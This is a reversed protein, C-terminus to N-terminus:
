FQFSRVQYNGWNKLPPEEEFFAFYTSGSGSMSVYYAGMSELQQKVQNLVPYKPLLALEFDNVITNKWTSRDKKIAEKLNVSYHKPSISAYAEKTSIHINPNVMLCFGTPIFDVPELLDGVGSVYSAQNRIFFTCDAGLKSAYEELKITSLKLEFLENLGKLVFAADASGGGLGAGIPIKKHLHIRVPPLSFDNNLLRYAKLCLNNEPTSDIKIGESSFDLVESEELTIEDYWPVPLFISELNHYGDKRKETVFLGFNIKANCKLLM